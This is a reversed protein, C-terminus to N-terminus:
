TKKNTENLNEKKWNIYDELINKHDFALKLEKIENIKFIKLNQADSAAKPTGAAKAIFVTAITHFRPDRGPASYTHFQILEKITLSTEEKAERIAAEELSEGYDLFGGPIAWGFPPNSREILVIGNDRGAPSAPIEIIIDVTSFPEQSLKTQIYDIYGFVNETFIEYAEKDHLVFIIEKLSTDKERLFKLVEQSMIKAAAKYSFGGVGCGMAPFAVSKIKLEDARKLANATSDRIKAEDTLLIGAQRCAPLGMTAAHIVFKAPLNGAGTVVTEGIKIPGLKVAEEEISKGAKRKIAGAVGGGMVLKNNAANVIADVQLETIDGQIVRIETDKIKM